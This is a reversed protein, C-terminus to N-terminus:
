NNKIKEFIGVLQTHVERNNQTQQEAREHEQKAIYLNFHHCNEPKNLGNHIAKAMLECSKYGCASCDYIDNDGYKHMSGDNRV